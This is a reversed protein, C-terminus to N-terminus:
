TAQLGPPNWAMVDTRDFGSIAQIAEIRVNWNPGENSGAVVKQLVDMFRTIDGSKSITRIAEVRVNWNPGENPEAVVKQLVDIFPTIDNSKSITRLAEVRVNWNPGENPEAVVKKLVDIFPTINGSQAIKRIAEIRVNLDEDKELRLDSGLLNFVAKANAYAQKADKIGMYPMSPNRGRKQAWEGHRVVQEASGEPLERLDNKSISM